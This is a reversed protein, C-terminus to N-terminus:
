AILAEVEAWRAGLMKKQVEIAHKAKDIGLMEVTAMRKGKVTSIAALIADVHAADAENDEAAEENKPEDLGAWDGDTTGEGWLDAAMLNAEAFDGDFIASVLLRVAARREGRVDGFPDDAEDYMRAIAERNMNIDGRKVAAYIVGAQKRTITDLNYSM